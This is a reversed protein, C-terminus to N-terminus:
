GGAGTGDADVTPLPACGALSTGAESVEAGACGEVAGLAVVGASDVGVFARLGTVAATVEVTDVAVFATAGTVPATASTVFPADADPVTETAGTVPM